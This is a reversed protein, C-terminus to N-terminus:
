SETTYNGKNEIIDHSEFFQGKNEIVDHSKGYFSSRFHTVLIEAVGDVHLHGRDKFALLRFVPKVPRFSSRRNAGIWIPESAKEGAAREAFVM